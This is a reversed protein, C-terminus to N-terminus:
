RQSISRLTKIGMFGARRRLFICITCQVESDVEYLIRSTELIAAIGSANDDSELHELNQTMLIRWGLIM